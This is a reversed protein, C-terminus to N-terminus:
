SLIAPLVVAGREGFRPVVTLGPYSHIRRQHAVRPRPWSAAYRRWAHLIAHEGVWPAADEEGARADVSRGIVRAAVDREVFAGVESRRPPVNGQEMFAARTVGAHNAQCSSGYSDHVHRIPNGSRNVAINTTAVVMVAGLDHKLGNRDYATAVAVAVYDLVTTNCLHLRIHIM